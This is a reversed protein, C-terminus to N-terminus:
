DISKHKEIICQLFVIDKLRGACVGRIICSDGPMPGPHPSYLTDLRCSVTEPLSPLGELLVLVGNGTKKVERVVGQVSLVKYLYIKNFLAENKESLRILDAANVPISNKVARAPARHMEHFYGYILLGGILPLLLTRGFIVRRDM